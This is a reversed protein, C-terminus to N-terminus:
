VRHRDGVDYGDGVGPLPHRLFGGIEVGLGGSSEDDVGQPILRHATMRSGFAFFGVFPKLRVGSAESREAHCNVEAEERAPLAVRM